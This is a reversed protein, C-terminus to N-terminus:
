KLEASGFLVSFSKCWILVHKYKKFDVSGDIDVAYTGNSPRKNTNIASKAALDESLYIFLDPGGDIKLNTFQLKLKGQADKVVKISGSAAHAPSSLFDGSAIVTGEVAPQEVVEPEKDCGVILLSFSFALMLFM